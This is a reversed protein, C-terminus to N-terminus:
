RSGRSRASRGVVAEEIGRVASPHIEPVYGARIAGVTSKPTLV